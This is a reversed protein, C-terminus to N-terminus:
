RGRVGQPPREAGPDGRSAYNIWFRNVNNRERIHQNKPREYEQGEACSGIRRRVLPQNQAVVASVRAGTARQGIGNIWCWGKHSRHSTCWLFLGDRSSKPWRKGLRRADSSPVEPLFPQM